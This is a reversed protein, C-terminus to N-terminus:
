KENPFVLNKSVNKQFFHLLLIMVEKGGDQIKM